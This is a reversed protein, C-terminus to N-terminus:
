DDHTVFDVSIDFSIQNYPRKWNWFVFGMTTKPVYLNYRSLFKNWLIDLLIVLNYRLWTQSKMFEFKIPEFVKSYIM